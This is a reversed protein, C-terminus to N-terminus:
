WKTTCFEATIGNTELNVSKGWVCNIIILDRKVYTSFKNLILQVLPPCGYNRRIIIKIRAIKSINYILKPIYSQAHVTYTKSV